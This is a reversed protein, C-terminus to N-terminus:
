EQEDPQGSSRAEAAAEAPPELVKIDVDSMAKLLEPTILDSLPLSIGQLAARIEPTILAGLPPSIGQLAARIEPTMLAGRPLSLGQLVDRLRLADAVTPRLHEAALREHTAPLGAEDLFREVLGRGDGIRLGYRHAYPRLAAVLEDYDVHWTTLADRAVSALHGGDTYEAALDAITRVITTVPLGDVVTWEGRELTGRHIRVDTRRTQKRVPSTFEHRDADLDGLDYLRAASRHSVVAPHPQDHLRTRALHRADLNLWAARIEDEQAPPAGAIRYVGHALRELLQRSTHRSLAQTTIGAANAQATTFLGWQGEALAAIELLSDTQM